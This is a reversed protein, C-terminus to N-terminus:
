GQAPKMNAANRMANQAAIQEPNAQPNNAQQAERQRRAYAKKQKTANSESRFIKWGIIVNPYLSQRVEVLVQNTENKTQEVQMFLDAFNNKLQNIRATGAKSQQTLRLEEYANIMDRIKPLKKDYLDILTDLKELLYWNIYTGIVGSLVAMALVYAITKGIHKFSYKKVYWATVVATMANLIGYYIANSNFISCVANTVVAALIGPFYGGIAAVAITGVTDLYFPMGTKNM